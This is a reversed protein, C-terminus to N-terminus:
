VGGQSDTRATETIEWTETATFECEECGVDRSMTNLAHHDPLGVYNLEGGCDPCESLERDWTSSNQISENETMM